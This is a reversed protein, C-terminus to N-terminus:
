AKTTHAETLAVFVDELSPAVPRIDAQHIHVSKLEQLIREDSLEERTVVNITQGFITASVVGDLARLAQLGTTVHDCLVELRRTGAANVEPRGKLDEPEGSVILRSMYIYGVHSCREAEDMYHTTVFLTMGQSSFKFLLDWLERRAVPDIGATPEDLFLVQPHHVLACGMALRQRWGGSLLGARRDLYPELHTMAILEDRRNRLTLGQLGYLRGYFNLNELVTLEDYLSFKQSMYGLLGKITETERAVDYGAIWATGGSPELLGCLMRIVTSKGSGNPGLFGFIAGKEVKLSVRDVATFDGFRRTLERCEIM